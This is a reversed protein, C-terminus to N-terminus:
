GEEAYAREEIKRVEQEDYEDYVNDVTYLNARDDDPGLLPVVKEKHRPNVIPPSHVELVTAENDTPNWAWHVKNRPIRMFDGKRCRFGRDEVFFWIEGELIYNIQEADHRHPVTHYGGGRTAILVSAEMGYIEKMRFPIDKNPPPLKVNIEQCDEINIRYKPKDNM